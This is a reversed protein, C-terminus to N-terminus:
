IKSICVVFLRSIHVKALANKESHRSDLTVTLDCLKGPSQCKNGTEGGALTRASLWASRVVGSLVDASAGSFFSNRFDSTKETRVHHHQSSAAAAASGLRFHLIHAPIQRQKYPSRPCVHRPSHRFFLQGANPSDAPAHATALHSGTSNFDFGAASSTSQHYHIM